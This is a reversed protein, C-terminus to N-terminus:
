STPEAGGSKKRSQHHSQAFEKLFMVAIEELTDRLENRPPPPSAAFVTSGQPDRGAFGAIVGLILAILFLLSASIMLGSFSIGNQRDIQLGLDILAVLVGSFFFAAAVALLAAAIAWRRGKEAAKLGADRFRETQMRTQHDFFSQLILILATM